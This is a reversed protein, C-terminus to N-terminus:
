ASERRLRVRSQLSRPSRTHLFRIQSGKRPGGIRESGDDGDGGWCCGCSCSTISSSCQSLSPTPPLEDSNRIIVVNALLAMTSLSSGDSSRQLSWDDSDSIPSNIITTSGTRDRPTGRGRGGGVGVRHGREKFRARGRAGPPTKVMAARARAGRPM